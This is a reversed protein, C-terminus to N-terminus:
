TKTQETQLDFCHSSQMPACPSSPVVVCGGPEVFAVSRFRVSEIKGYKKFHNTIAKKSTNVAVNGVFVERKEKELPSEVPEGELSHDSEDSEADEEDSGNGGEDDSGSGDGSERRVAENDYVDEDEDEDEDGEERKPAQQPTVIPLQIPIATNEDTKRRKPGGLAGL